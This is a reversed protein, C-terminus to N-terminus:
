KAVMLISVLEGAALTDRDPPVVLYCDARATAAMDGSGQWKVVEVEVNEFEGSLAAPLFRTLGTKTKFDSKLRAQLFRLPSPKAGALAALLPRAFLEFTVMTSVPNGPLGLFPTNGVRGLVAPRGPQIAAGTFIFEAGLQELVQEVLDYKGVSVGGTILLMDSALGQQILRRLPGAEDPAIPLQVPSGGATAVQAALSYSNSNRIQNPGPEAAVDVVEDGTSLIAIRPRQYVLLSTKGVAAALAIQAHAIRTGPALLEAGARAEAGAPVVNEGPAVARQVEVNENNAGETRATYEVMVVADAGPPVPAGTMIEAAEGAALPSSRTWAGGAKIHAVIRLEAPPVAVDAARVAYGDRTARPFPPLDRDASVLEALVRGRAELLACPEPERPKLGRAAAEAARRAEQFGLM